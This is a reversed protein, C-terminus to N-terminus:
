DCFPFPEDGEFGQGNACAHVEYGQEKLYKMYPMHFLFHLRINAVFLVKEGM